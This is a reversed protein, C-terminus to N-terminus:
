YCYFEYSLYYGHFKIEDDFALCCTCFTRIWPLPSTLSADEWWGNEIIVKKFINKEYNRAEEIVIFRVGLARM